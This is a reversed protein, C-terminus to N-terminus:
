FLDNYLKLDWHMKEDFIQKYKPELNEYQESGLNKTVNNNANEFSKDISPHVDSLKLNYCFQFIENIAKTAEDTNYVRCTALEKKTLIYEKETVSSIGNFYYNLINCPFEDSAIHDNLSSSKFANHYPEHSSQSSKVYYYLSKILKFPHKITIWKVYDAEFINFIKDKVLLGDTSIHLSFPETKTSIEKLEKLNMKVLVTNKIPVLIRNKDWILAQGLEKNNEEIIIRRGFDVHNIKKDLLYQRHLKIQQNLAFTGACKTIHYFTPLFM